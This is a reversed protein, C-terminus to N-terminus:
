TRRVFKGITLTLRFSRSLLRSESTRGGMLGFGLVRTSHRHGITLSGRFQLIFSRMITQTFFVRAAAMLLWPGTPNARRAPFPNGTCVGRIATKHRARPPLPVSGWRSNSRRKPALHSRPLSKDVPRRVFLGHSDLSQFRVAKENGRVRGATRPDIFYDQGPGVIM